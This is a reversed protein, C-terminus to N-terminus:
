LSGGLTLSDVAKQILSMREEFTLETDFTQGEELSFQSFDSIGKFSFVEIGSSDKGVIDTDTKIIKEAKFEQNNFNLIKM